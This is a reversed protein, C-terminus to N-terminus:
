NASPREVHDIVLINVREKSAVVKLGLQQELAVPLPPADGPPYLKDFAEAQEPSLGVTGALSPMCELTFDYGGTLGTKDFLPRDFQSGLRLVLESISVNSYITRLRGVLVTKSEVDPASPKLKSQNNRLMLSYAPLDKTELHLKLEFREALLTQLMQRADDM